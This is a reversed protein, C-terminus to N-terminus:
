FSRQSIGDSSERAESRRRTILLCIVALTIFLATQSEPIAIIRFAYDQDRSLGIVDGGSEPFSYGGFRTGGVYPDLRSYGYFNFGNGNRVSKQTLAFMEGAKGEVARDLMMPTWTLATLSLENLAVQGSGLINSDVSVSASDFRHLELGFARGGRWGQVPLEIGIITIPGNLTFTQGFGSPDDTGSVFVPQELAVYSGSPFVGAGHVGLTLLILSFAIKM